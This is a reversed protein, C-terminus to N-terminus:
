GSQKEVATDILLQLRSLDEAHWGEIRNIEHSEFGSGDFHVIRLDYVDLGQNYRLHVRLLSSTAEARGPASVFHFVATLTPEIAFIPRDTTNTYLYDRGGFLLTKPALLLFQKIMTWIIENIPGTEAESQESM